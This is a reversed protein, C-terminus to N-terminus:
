RWRRPMSQHAFEVGSRNLLTGDHAVGDRVWAPVSATWPPPNQEDVVQPFSRLRDRALKLYRAIRYAAIQAAGHHTHLLARSGARERRLIQRPRLDQKLAGRCPIRYDDLPQQLLVPARRAHARNLRTAGTPRRTTTVANPPGDNKL